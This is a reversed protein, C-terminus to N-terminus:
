FELKIGTIISMTSPYTSQDIKITSNNRSNLAPDYGSYDTITFVNDLAVYINANKIKDTFSQVPVDYSLRVTRLKIYSADEVTYNTTTIAGQTFPSVFGPYVNTPNSPTWRNLLPEAVRNRRFGNPQLTQQLNQNLMNVGQEGEFFVSLNFRGYTFDNSLGWSYDPISKGLIVRDDGTIAGDNNIDAYKYNGPIIPATPNDAQQWIGVISWGYFSNLTEGETIITNGNIIREQDGIDLVENKYTSLNFTTNWKFKGVLNQSDVLLEFGYNRISGINELRSTFGTEQPVPIDMLLDTTTKVYYDTSFSLRNKLFSFDLGIDFQETAEWRLDPNALRTPAFTTNVADDFYYARTPGYTVLSNYNGIDQNGTLGWSARLKLTSFLDMQEVFDENDLKWAFAASPFYGYKNNEGFRSSGDARITGTLLYKDKFNYNIRGIYSLLSNDNKFSNLNYTASNGTQISNTQLAGIPFGSASGRFRENTFVQKTIGALVDISSSKFSKNYNITGELLYNSNNLTSITGSSGVRQGQLSKDGVWSDQRRSQFDFGVNMKLKLGPIIAYQAYINGLGRIAKMNEEIEEAIAVPNDLIIFDSRNYSGDANRVRLTPDYLLASTLASATENGGQGSAGIRNYSYSTTLNLGTQFKDNIDHDLNIRLSYRDFGTNILVGEEKRYGLSSFFRTSKNGGSVSINHNTVFGDELIEDQWDTGGDQIETVRESPTGGGEDIIANLVSQYEEATLVDIKSYKTLKQIGTYGDYSVKFENAKGRKTTIMVVGNAGRSGYIATASADKLIEVTEIDAPDLTNLPNRSTTSPPVGSGRGLNGGQDIDIPLGDIVYLPSTGGSISGAGRVQISIAGGPDGGSQQVRVGAARGVVMQELSTVAGRNFDDQRLSSVSGTLDSKKVTGYGIIVVEDLESTSEELSINITGQGNIAIETSKYGLYSIVLVANNSSVSLTYNGDFDTQTGNKTGKEIVNAGPLPLGNVDTVKGSVQLQVMFSESNEINSKIFKADTIGYSQFQSMLSIIVILKVRLIGNLFCPCIKMPKFIKCM